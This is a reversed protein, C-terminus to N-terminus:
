KLRKGGFQAFLDVGGICSDLNLIGARVLHLGRIKSTVNLRVKGGQAGRCDGRTAM